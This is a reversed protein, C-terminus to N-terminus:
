GLKRPALQAKLGAEDWEASTSVIKGDVIKMKTLGAANARRGTPAIGDLTGRHTGQASWRVLLEEGNKQISQVTIKLDPFAVRFRDFLQACQHATATHSAIVSRSGASWGQEYFAHITGKDAASIANASTAPRATAATKEAGLLMRFPALVVGTLATTVLKLFGRRQQM